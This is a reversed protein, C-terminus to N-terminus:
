SDYDSITDFYKEVLPKRFLRIKKSVDDLHDSNLSNSAYLKELQVWELYLNRYYERKKNDKELSVAEELFGDVILFHKRICDYCRKRINNLHDELLLCQKASERMNFSPDLIPHLSQKNCKEADCKTDSDCLETKVINVDSSIKADDHIYTNTDIIPKTTTSPATYINNELMSEQISGPISGPISEPMTIQHTQGNYMIGNHEPTTDTSLGLPTAISGLITDLSLVNSNKVDHTENVTNSIIANDTISKVEQTAFQEHCKKMSNDFDLTIVYIILLAILILILIKNM